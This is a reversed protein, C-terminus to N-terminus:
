MADDVEAATSHGGEEEKRPRLCARVRARVCVCVCVCVRARMTRQNAISHTLSLLSLRPQQSAISVVCHAARAACGLTRVKYRHNSQKNSPVGREREREGEREGDTRSQSMQQTTCLVSAASELASCTREGESRTRYM